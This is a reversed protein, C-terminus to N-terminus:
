SLIELVEANIKLVYFTVHEKVHGSQLDLLPTLSCPFLSWPAANGM